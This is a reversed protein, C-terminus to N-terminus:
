ILSRSRRAAFQGGDGENSSSPESKSHYLVQKKETKREKKVPQAITIISNFFQMTLAVNVSEVATLWLVLRGCFILVGISRGVTALM